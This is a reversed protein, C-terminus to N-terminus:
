HLRFGCLAILPISLTVRAHAEHHMYVIEGQLGNCCTARVVFVFRRNIRFGYYNDNHLWEM